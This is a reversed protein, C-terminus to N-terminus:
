PGRTWNGAFSMSNMLWTLSRRANPLGMPLGEGPGSLIARGLKTISPRNVIMRGLLEADRRSSEADDFPLRPQATPHFLGHRRHRLWTGSICRLVHHPILPSPCGFQAVDGASCSFLAVLYGVSGETWGSSKSLSANGDCLM